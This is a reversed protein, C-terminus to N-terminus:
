RNPSLDIVPCDKPAKDLSPTLVIRGGSKEASLKFGPILSANAPTEVYWVASISMVSSLYAGDHMYWPSFAGAGKVCAVGAKEIQIKAESVKGLTLETERAADEYWQRISNRPMQDIFNIAFAFSALTLVTFFSSCTRSQPFLSACCEILTVTLAGYLLPLWIFEYYANIHNPLTAYPVITALAALVLFAAGPLKRTALAVALPTTVALVVLAGAGHRVMAPHSSGTILALTTRYLSGVSVSFYYPSAPDISGLFASKGFVKASIFLLTAVLLGLASAKIAASRGQYGSLAVFIAAGLYLLVFDEKAAVSMTILLASAVALRSDALRASHLLAAAAGVGLCGSLLHTILGTYRGYEVLIPTSFTAVGFACLLAWYALGSSKHGFFCALQWALLAYTVTLLRVAWILSDPGASALLQIFLTSLPRILPLALPASGQAYNTYDDHHVPIANPVGSTGFACLYFIVFLVAFTLAQRRAFEATWASSRKSERHEDHPRAAAM